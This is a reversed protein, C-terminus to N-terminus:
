WSGNKPFSRNDPESQWSGVWAFSRGVPCASSQSKFRIKPWMAISRRRFFFGPKKSSSMSLLITNGARPRWFPRENRTAKKESIRGALGRLFFFGSFFKDNAVCCNFSCGITSCFICCAIREWNILVSRVGAIVSLPIGRALPNQCSSALRSLCLNNGAKCFSDSKRYVM